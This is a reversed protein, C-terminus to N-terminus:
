SAQTIRARLPELTQRVVRGVSILARVDPPFGGILLESRIASIAKEEATKPVGKHVAGEVHALHRILQLVSIELGEILMLPQALFQDKTLEIVSRLGPVGTNPDLGDQVSWFTPTPNQPPQCNNVVFRLRIHMHRNVRDVLPTGDVLLLRLIAAIKMLRYEDSRETDTLIQDLERISHILLSKEDM